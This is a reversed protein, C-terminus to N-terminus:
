KVNGLFFIGEEKEMYVSHKFIWFPSALVSTSINEFIQLLIWIDNYLNKNQKENCIIKTIWFIFFFFSELNWNKTSILYVFYKLIVSKVLARFSFLLHQIGSLLSLELHIFIYDKNQKNCFLQCPQTLLYDPVIYIYIYIYIYLSLSLSLSDGSFWEKNQKWLVPVSGVWFM